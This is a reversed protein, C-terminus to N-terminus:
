EQIWKKAAQETSFVNLMYNSKGFEKILLMIIAVIMPNSTVVAHRIFKQKPIIEHISSKLTALEKVSGKPMTANAFELVRFTNQHNNNLFYNKSEDLLEEISTTGIHEIYLIHDESNYHSKLM